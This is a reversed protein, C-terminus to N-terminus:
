NIRTPLYLVSSFVYVLNFETPAFVCEYRLWTGLCTRRYSFIFELKPSTSHVFCGYMGRWIVNAIQITHFEVYLHRNRLLMCESVWTAILIPM